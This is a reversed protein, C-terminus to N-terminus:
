KNKSNVEKMLKEIDDLFEEKLDSAIFYAEDKLGPNVRLIENGNMMGLLFLGEIKYKPFPLESGQTSEMMKEKSTFVPIFPKGKEVFDQIEIVNSKVDTQQSLLIVVKDKFIEKNSM